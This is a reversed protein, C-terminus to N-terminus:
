LQCKRLIFVSIKGRESPERLNLFIVIINKGCLLCIFYDRCKVDSNKELHKLIQVKKHLLM